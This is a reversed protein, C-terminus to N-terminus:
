QLENEIEDFTLIVLTAFGSGDTDSVVYLITKLFIFFTTFM